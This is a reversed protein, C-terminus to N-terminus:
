RFLAFAMAVGGHGLDEVHSVLWPPVRAFGGVWDRGSFSLDYGVICVVLRGVGSRSGVFCQTCNYSHGADVWGLVVFPLVYSLVVVDPNSNRVPMVRRFLSSFM